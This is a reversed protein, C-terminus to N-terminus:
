VLEDLLKLLKALKVHQIFLVDVISVILNVAHLHVSRWSHDPEGQFVNFILQFDDLDFSLELSWVLIYLSFFRHDGLVILSLVLDDQSRNLLLNLSRDCLTYLCLLIHDSGNLKRM